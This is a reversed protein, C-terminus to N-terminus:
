TSYTQPKHFPYLTHFARRPHGVESCNGAIYCLTIFNMTVSLFTYYFFTDIYLDFIFYTLITTYTLGYMRFLGEEEIPDKGIKVLQHGSELQDCWYNSM